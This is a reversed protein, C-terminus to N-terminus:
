ANGDTTEKQPCEVLNFVMPRDPADGERALGAAIFPMAAYLTERVECTSCGDFAGISPDDGTEIGEDIAHFYGWVAGMHDEAARAAQAGFDHELEVTENRINQVTTM